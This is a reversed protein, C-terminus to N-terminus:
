VCSKIPGSSYWLRLSNEGLGTETEMNGLNQPVAETSNCKSVDSKENVDESM